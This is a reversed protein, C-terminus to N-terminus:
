ATADASAGSSRGFSTEESDRAQTLAPKAKSKVYLYGGIGLPIMEILWFGILAQWVGSTFGYSHLGVGFNNVGWWSFTVVIGGFIAGLCLGLMKIYGGLRLHLIALEWLCIMLAGNEKPDWGWFRGWSDNAWVGGLITGVISFVLSFCLVGYVMRGVRRYFDPDKAKFGFAKGFVYVHAIAAALLGAAYGTTISTVHTALWYNTDLVAVLPRLTDEGHTQMRVEALYCGALGLVAAVAGGLRQRHILDLVLAIPVVIATIFLCTEYLTTVPPRGVIICRYVIGTVLFAWALLNTGFSGYRLFRSRPALWGIAVLVFALVFTWYSKSFWNKNHYDVELDITGLEGRDKALKRIDDHLVTLQAKHEAVNDRAAVTRELAAMYGLQTKVRGGVDAMCFDAVDSPTLWEKEKKNSPPFMALMRARSAQDHARGLFGALQEGAAKKAPDNMLARAKERLETWRSLVTSLSVTKSPFLTAIEPSVSAEGDGLSLPLLAFEFNLILGRFHLVSSWLELVQSQILTRNDRDIGQYSNGLQNLKVLGPALEQYSYYDRKRKGEHPLEIADLVDSNQIRFLPDRVVLDPHMLADLFWEMASLRVTEGGRSVKISQAGRLQLLTHGAVSLLPKIRGGEQVPIESWLRIVEPDWSTAHSGDAKPVADQATVPSGLQLVAVAALFLMACSRAFASVVRSRSM